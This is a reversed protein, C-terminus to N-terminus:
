FKKGYSVVLSQSASNDFEFPFGNESTVKPNDTKFYRYETEIFFDDRLDFRNGLILQKAKVTDSKDSLPTGPVTYTVKAVGFGAGIYPNLHDPMDKLNPRFIFNVMATQYDTNAVHFAGGNADLGDFNSRQRSLELEVAAHEGVNAGLTAYLGFGKEFEIKQSSFSSSVDKQDSYSSAGLGLKLYFFSGEEKAINTLEDSLLTNNTDTDSQAQCNFALSMTTLILAAKKIIM